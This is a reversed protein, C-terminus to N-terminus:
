GNNVALKLNQSPKFRVLRNFLIPVKEGTRPDRGFKKKNEVVKFIGFGRIELRGDRELGKTMINIIDVVIDKMECKKLEVSSNWATNILETTNM